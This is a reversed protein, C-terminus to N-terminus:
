KVVVIRSVATKSGAVLQLLYAGGNLKGSNLIVEQLGKGLGEIKKSYVIKGNLDFVNIIVDSKDPLIFEVHTEESAPNPFVNLSMNDAPQSGPHEEQGVTFYDENRFVGRGHTGAYIMGYNKIEPFYEYVPLGTNPDTTTLVFQGKYVTQQKLDMVPVKGIPDGAQYWIGSAVNDSVWIGEETGIMAMDNDPQMELIASYVPFRPLGTTSPDGQVSTFTPNDDLANTTYFVYDTNGYNGLTILVKNSNRPDVAISTIVQTNGSYVELQTTAIICESSSVDARIQDYALAINSIRFLKGEYTGIYLYNCDSSYAMCSPNDSFGLHSKDSIKFWDPTVDFKLGQMTMYVNDKIAFFLKSSIIDQVKVSDGANLDSQLVSWFPVDYNGSRVLVSDGTGYNIDARFYISDRSNVNNYSEWLILPTMFNTSTVSAGFDSLFNISWDFGLSESRRMRYVSNGNDILPESRPFPSKTYFSPPMKESEGDKQSRINSIATFGGDTGEPYKSDLNAPRWLDEGKKSTTGTASTGSIYQTGMSQTGGIVETVSNSIDISYFQTVNFDKNRSEFAFLQYASVYQGIYIGGDTTIYFVDPYAPLFVYSHHYNHCYLNNFIGNFLVNSGDSNIVTGISKENWQFYGTESAKVGEWMNVGGALLRYPNDPFVALTNCYDGRYYAIADTGGPNYYESGLINLLDSGGPAIIRWSNGKDESLYINSLSNIKPSGSKTAMAYVINQDSPAIAYSIRGTNASSPYGILIEKITEELSVYNVHWDYEKSYVNTSDHLVEGASNKIVIHTSYNVQDKRVNDANNPYLSKNYFENPNGSESVYIFGNFSSIIWGNSSVAVDWCNGPEDFAVFGGFVSETGTTDDTLINYEMEDLGYIV